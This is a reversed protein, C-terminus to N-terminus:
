APPIDTQSFDDGKFLLPEGEVSATGYAICDGFNLAAPARTRGFSWWADLAAERHADTFPIVEVGLRQFLLELIAGMPRGKRHSLVIGAEVFTAASIASHEAAAIQDLFATAEPENLVIAVVVSSDLIV